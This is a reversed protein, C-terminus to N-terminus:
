YDADWDVLIRRRELDVSKVVPGVAFPILREREGKVVLVDHAGTEILSDVQGFGEGGINEVELGILDVWYYEDEAAPPLADRPVAIDAGVWAAAGDRDEVGAIRAVLTKGQRRGDLLRAPTWRTEGAPDAKGLVVDGYDLLNDRPATHSFLKVWGRVGHLGSIRGIVVQGGAAEAGSGENRRGAV